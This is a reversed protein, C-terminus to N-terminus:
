GRPAVRERLFSRLISGLRESDEQKNFPSFSVRLAGQRHEVRDFPKIDFGTTAHLEQVLANADFTHSPKAQIGLFGPNDRYLDIGDLDTLHAACLNSREARAKQMDHRFAEDAAWECALALGAFAGWDVTGGEFLRADRFLRFETDIAEIARWGHAKRPFKDMDDERVFLFGTGLPGHLWKHGTSVLAACGLEKVNIKTLGVSQTADIFLEVNHNHAYDIWGRHINRGSLYGTFSVMIWDPPSGLPRDDPPRYPDIASIRAGRAQLLSIPLRFSPHEECGTWIRARTQIDIAQVVSIIGDTANNTLAIEGPKADILKSIGHRTHTLIEERLSNARRSFAGEEDFVRRAIAAVSSIEHPVQGSGATNFYNPNQSGSFRISIPTM